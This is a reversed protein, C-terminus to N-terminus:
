LGMDPALSHGGECWRVIEGHRTSDPLLLEVFAPAVADPTPFNERPLGPYAKERLRTGVPGPDLLNIRISSRRHEAAWALVLAELAAKSAAYCGWYAAHQAAKGDTAFVARGASSAKLLPELTRILRQNALANVTMVRLFLKPDLHSMPTLVGLEGACAALGDLRRFREFLAGGLADVLDGQALDLTILTASAGLARIADDTAELGGRTRATLVLRAGEAACARAVAAGIGRSAGTVLVVRGDLRGTM